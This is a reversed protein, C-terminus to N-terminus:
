SSPRSLDVFRAPLHRSLRNRQHHQRRPLAAPHLGVQRLHQVPQATHRQNAVRQGRAAAEVGVPDHHDRAVAGLRHRLGHALEVGLRLHRQLGFLKAGAVRDGLGQRQQLTERALDHHQIAVRGENAGVRQRRQDGMGGVHHHQPELGGIGAAIAPQHDLAVIQVPDHFELVGVGCGALDRQAIGAHHRRIRAQQPIQDPPQAVVVRGAFVVQGVHDSQGTRLAAPGRDDGAVFGLRQADVGAGFQSLGLGRELGALAGLRQLVADGEGIGRRDPEGGVRRDAAVRRDPLVDDEAGAHGDFAAGLDQGEAVQFAAMDAGAGGDAGEGPQPRPRFQAAVHM